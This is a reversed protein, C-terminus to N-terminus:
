VGGGRKRRKKKEIDIWDYLHNNDKEAPIKDFTCTCLSNKNYLFLYFHILFLLFFLLIYTVNLFLM